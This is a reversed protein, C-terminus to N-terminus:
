MWKKVSARYMLESLPCKFIDIFWLFGKLKFGKNFIHFFESFDLKYFYWVLLLSLNHSKFDILKRIKYESLNNLGIYHDAIGIHEERIKVIHARSGTFSAKHFTMKYLIKEIVLNKLNNLALRILFERDNSIFVTGDYYLPTLLGHQQFINKRYFHNLVHKFLVNNMNLSINKNKYSEFIIKKSFLEEISLGCSYFDYNPNERVKEGIIELADNTLYDDGYLFGIIDGTSLGIAKNVASAGSEDEESIAINIIDMNNNVIEMTNDDSLGDMVIVELNNYNQSKLSNLTRKLTKGANKVPIIITIKPLKGM